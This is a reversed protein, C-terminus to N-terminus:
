WRRWLARQGDHSEGYIHRSAADQAHEIRRAERRTIVGDSRAVREMRAIRRQEANLRFKETWTLQGSHRAYNIRRAQETQRRDIRSGYDYASAATTGAIVAVLALLAHRTM